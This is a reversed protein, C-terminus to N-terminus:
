SYVAFEDTGVAGAHGDADVLRVAIAGLVNVAVPDIDGTKGGRRRFWWTACCKEAGGISCHNRRGVREKEAGTM